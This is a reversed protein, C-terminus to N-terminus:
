SQGGIAARRQGVEGAVALLRAQDAGHRGADLLVAVDGVLDTRGRRNLDLDEVLWEEATELATTECHESAPWGMETGGTSVVVEEEPLGVVSLLAEAVGVSVVTLPLGLSVGELEAEAVGVPEEVGVPPEVGPPEEVGAPVEVGSGDLVLPPAEEEVEGAKLAAPLTLPLM